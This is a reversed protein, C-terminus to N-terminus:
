QVVGTILSPVQLPAHQAMSTSNAAATQSPFQPDHLGQGGSNGDLLSLPLNAPPTLLTGQMSPTAVGPAMASVPISWEPASLTQLSNVPQVPAANPVGLLPYPTPTSETM